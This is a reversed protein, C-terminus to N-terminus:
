LTHALNGDSSTFHQDAKSGVAKLFQVNSKSTVSTLFSHMCYLSRILTVFSLKIIFCYMSKLNRILSFNIDPVIADSGSIASMVIFSSCNLKSEINTSM